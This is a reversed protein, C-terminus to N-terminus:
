FLEKAKEIEEERKMVEKIRRDEADKEAKAKMRKAINKNYFLFFVQAYSDEDIDVCVKTDAKSTEWIYTEYVTYSKKSRWETYHDNQIGTAPGRKASIANSIDNIKENLHDITEQSCYNGRWYLGFKDKDYVKLKYLSDNYFYAKKKEIYFAGIKGNPIKKMLSDWAIIFDKRSMGYKIGYMLISDSTNKIETEEATTERKEETYVKETSILLEKKVSYALFILVVIAALILKKM